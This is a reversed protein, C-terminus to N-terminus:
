GAAKLRTFGGVRDHFTVPADGAMGTIQRALEDTPTGFFNIGKTAVLFDYAKRIREGALQLHMILSDQDPHIQLVTMTRSADDVCIEFHLYRPHNAELFEAMERSAQKAEDLKGAVIEHTGVYILPEGM